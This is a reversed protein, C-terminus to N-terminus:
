ADPDNNDGKASAALIAGLVAGVVAGVPGFGLSAALIGGGIAAGAESIEPNEKTTTRVEAGQIHYGNERINKIVEKPNAAILPSDADFEITKFYELKGIRGLVDSPVRAGPSIGSELFLYANNIRGVKYIDCKM